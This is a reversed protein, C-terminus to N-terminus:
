IISAREFYTAHELRTIAAVLSKWLTPAQDLKGTALIKEGSKQATVGAEVGDKSSM